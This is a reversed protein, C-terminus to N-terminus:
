RLGVLVVRHPYGNASTRVRIDTVAGAPASILTYHPDGVTGNALPTGASDVGTNFLTPIFDASCFEASGHLAMLIATGLIWRQM